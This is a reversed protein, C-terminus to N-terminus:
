INLIKKISEEDNDQIDTPVDEPIKSDTDTGNSIKNTGSNNM